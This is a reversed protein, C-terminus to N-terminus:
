FNAIWENMGLVEWGCTGLVWVIGMREVEWVWVGCGMVDPEWDEVGGRM